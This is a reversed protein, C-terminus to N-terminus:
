QRATLTVFPAVGVILFSLQTSYFSEKAFYIGKDYGFHRLFGRVCINKIAYFSAGHWLYKENAGFGNEMANKESQYMKWLNINQVTKISDIRLSQSSHLGYEFKGQIDAFLPTRRDLPVLITHEYCTLARSNILDWWRPPSDKCSMQLNQSLSEPMNIYKPNITAEFPAFSLYGNPNTQPPWSDSDRRLKREKWTSM